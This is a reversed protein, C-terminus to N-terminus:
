RNRKAKTGQGNARGNQQGGTKDVRAIGKEGIAYLEISIPHPSRQNLQKSAAWEKETTRFRVDPQPSRFIKEALEPSPQKGTLLTWLTSDFSAGMDLPNDLIEAVLESTAYARAYLSLMRLPNEVNRAGENIAAYFRAAWKAERVSMILGEEDLMWVWLKLVTSLAEPPIQHREDALSALSWPQDEDPGERKSYTSVKKGITSLKPAREGKLKPNTRIEAEIQKHIESALVKPLMRKDSPELQEARVASIIIGEIHPNIPPRGRKKRTKQM